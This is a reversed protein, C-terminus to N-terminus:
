PPSNPPAAGPQPPPKLNLSAVMQSPSLPQPPPTLGEGRKPPWPTPPRQPQPPPTLRFIMTQDFSASTPLQDGSSVPTLVMAPAEVARHRVRAIGRGVLSTVEDIRLLASVAWFVLCFALGGAVLMVVSFVLSGAYFQLERVVLWAAGAAVVSAVTVKGWLWVIRGLGYDGMDRRMLWLFVVGSLLMGATDAGALIAVGYRGPLWLLAPVAVLVQVVVPFLGLWFNTWGNQQAFYYRQRLRALASGWNGLSYAAIVLWVNMADVGTLGYVMRVLPLGLAIMAMSSGIVLVSPAILAQRVLDKMRTNDHDQWASSMAPFLATVISLMILSVPLITLSYAYQQTAVGPYDPIGARMASMVWNLALGQFASILVLAFTWMTMRSVEGFGYGRWGFRLRFRFGDKYLPWILCLAQVVIGATTSVGLVVIMSMSWNAPNPQQGWQLWFWVLGIIQVFNALAPAWAFATFHGRANLVQGLVAYLGYFFVQPMCWYGLLITLHLYGPVAASANSALTLQMIWPTGITCIVATGLMVLLALTILRNIFDDGGDPRKMAKTIQPILVGTVVGTAIVTYIITPLNNAQTFADATIATLAIRAFIAARVFGLVRSGLTGFALVSFNRTVRTLRQEAAALADASGGPPGSSPDSAPSSV